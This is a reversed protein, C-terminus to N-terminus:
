EDEYTDHRSEFELEGKAEELEIAREIEDESQSEMQDEFLLEERKLEERAKLEELAEWHRRDFPPTGSLSTRRALDHAALERRTPVEDLRRTLSRVLELVERTVAETSRQQQVEPAEPTELREFAQRLDPWSRDFVRKLTADELADSGLAKNMSKLLEFTGDMDNRQMQFQALPGEVDPPAMDILYPVVYTDELAKALAGAEFLVWPAHQNERTLCIVGFKTQSLQANIEPTWRAGATIDSKSMWPKVAQITEEVWSRLAKAVTLSQPGSWSIFVKM